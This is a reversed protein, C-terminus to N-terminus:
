ARISEGIEKGLIMEIKKGHEYTVTLSGHVNFAGPNFVGNTPTVMGYDMAVRHTKFSFNALMTKTESVADLKEM